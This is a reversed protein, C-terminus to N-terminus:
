AAGGAAPDTLVRHAYAILREKEGRPDPTEPDVVFFLPDVSRLSHGLAMRFGHRHAHGISAECWELLRLVSLTLAGRFPANAFESHRRILEFTVRAVGLIDFRNETSSGTLQARLLRHFYTFSPSTGFAISRAQALAMGHFLIDEFFHDNPFALQGREMLDRSLYKNAAQPEFCAGWAKARALPMDKGEAALTAIEALAGQSCAEDLFPGIKHRPYSLCGRALVLEAGTRDILDAAEALAWPARVDDSDLFCVYDGQCHRLGRNRASSLGDNMQPIVRVRPDDLQALIAATASGSGDDVIILELDEHTQNLVSAISQRIIEGENFVTMVCSFKM